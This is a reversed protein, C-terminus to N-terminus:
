FDFISAGNAEDHDFAAKKQQKTQKIEQIKEQEGIMAILEQNTFGDKNSKESVVEKNDNDLFLDCLLKVNAIHKIMKEQSHQKEKAEYLEHLMKKIITENAVAM